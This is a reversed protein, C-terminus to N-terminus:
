FQEAGFTWTFLLLLIHKDKRKHLLLSLARRDNETQIKIVKPFWSAFRPFRLDLFHFGSSLISWFDSFAFIVDRGQASLESAAMGFRILDRRQPRLFRGSAMSTCPRSAAFSFTHPCRRAAFMFHGTPGFRLSPLRERRHHSQFLM